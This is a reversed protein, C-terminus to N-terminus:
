FHFKSNNETDINKLWWSYGSADKNNVTVELIEVAPGQGCGVLIRKSTEKIESPALSQETTEYDVRCSWITVKDNGHMSFAGPYPKTQARVFDYIKTAPLSWDIKGDKPDRQPFVRRLSENQITLKISGDCMEPLHTRLLDLGLLEVRDYVTRITDEPSINTALQGLIPGNDVGNAM